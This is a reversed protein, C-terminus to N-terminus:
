EFRVDDIYITTASQAPIIWYFGTILNSADGKIPIKVDKWETSLMLKREVQLTDFNPQEDTVLGVGFSAGIQDFESRVRLKLYRANSLDMGGEEAGWNNAPTQWAVGSWEGAPTQIRICTGDCDGAWNTEVTVNTSGMWGTPVWPGGVGHDQYVWWPMPLPEGAARQTGVLIPMSATAGAGNGDRAEAYIRYVGNSKPARFVAAEAKNKLLAKAHKPPLGQPDGGTVQEKIERRLTWVAEVADGDPDQISWSVHIKSGPKVVDTQNGHKDHVELPTVTPAHNDIQGGWVSALADVGGLRTGDNLFLGYWTPTAEVKWGWLFAYGGLIQESENIKQAMSTYVDSKQTSTLEPYAGFSTAPIEWVGPPGYETLVIPKTGGANVYREGISPGGGYTNIGHIDIADCQNVFPVREGGIDATTTMVPHNPDLEQIMEAIDCVAKWIQPNDGKAFGEMENGVGWMLLAPHDKYLLVAARAQLLQESVQVPDSYDFGHREHGLWIGLSVTLGQEHAQDLLALTEPGVGWTRISTGGAEAFVDLAHYGGAGNLVYPAGGRFLQWGVDTDEIHVPIPEAQIISPFVSAGLVGLVTGFRLRM